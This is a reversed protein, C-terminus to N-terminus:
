GRVCNVEEGGRGAYNDATDGERGGRHRIGRRAQRAPSWDRVKGSRGALAM